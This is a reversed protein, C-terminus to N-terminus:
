NEEVTIPKANYYNEIRKRKVLGCAEEPTWLNLDIILANIYAM